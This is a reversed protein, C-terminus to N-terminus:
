ANKLIVEHITLHGLKTYNYLGDPLTEALDMTCQEAKENLARAAEGPAPPRQPRLFEDPVVGDVDVREIDEVEDYFDDGNEVSEYDELKTRKRHSNRQGVEPQRAAEDLVQPQQKRPRIRLPQQQPRMNDEDAYDDGRHRFRRDPNNGYVWGVKNYRHFSKSRWARSDSVEYFM